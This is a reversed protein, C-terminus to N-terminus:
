WVSLFFPNLFSLIMVPFLSMNTTVIDWREGFSLWLWDFEIRLAGQFKRPVERKPSTCLSLYGVRKEFTNHINKKTKQGENRFGEKIYKMKYKYNQRCYRLITSTLHSYYYNKNYRTTTQITNPYMRFNGTTYSSALYWAAYPFCCWVDLRYRYVRDMRRRWEKLNTCTHNDLPTTM